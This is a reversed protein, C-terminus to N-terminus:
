WARANTSPRAGWWGSRRPRPLALRAPGRSPLRLHHERFQAGATGVRARVKGARVFCAPAIRARAWRAPSDRARARMRGSAAHASTRRPLMGAAVSSFRALALGSISRSV